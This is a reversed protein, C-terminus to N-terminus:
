AHAPLENLVDRVAAAIPGPNGDSLIRVCPLAALRQVVEALTRDTAAQEPTPVLWHNTRSDTNHMPDTMFLRTSTLEHAVEDAPVQEVVTGTRGNSFHPLILLSPRIRDHVAAGDTLVKGFEPPAIAVKEAHQWLAPGTLAHADSPALEALHPHALLTGAAIRLEMPWPYGTLSDDEARLLLRDNTVYGAGPLRLASLLTSTKGQGHHGFILAAGTDYAFAATHAYVAGLALLQATMAQRIIRPAFHVAGQGTACTATITRTAHDTRILTADQEIWYDRAHAGVARTRAFQHLGIETSPAHVVAGLDAETIDSCQLTVTWAGDPVHTDPRYAYLATLAAEHAEPSNTSWAVGAEAQRFCTSHAAPRAHNV